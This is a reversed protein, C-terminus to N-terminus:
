QGLMKGFGGLDLGGTVEALSEEAVERAKEMAANFAAAILDEVMRADLDGKEGEAALAVLMPRDIKIDLVEFKGNMVVRVAGAGADAEVVKKELDKQVQEMKVKFERAQGMLGALNKLNDFM